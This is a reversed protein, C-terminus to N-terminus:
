IPKRKISNNSVQFQIPQVHASDMFVKFPSANYLESTKLGHKQYYTIGFGAKKVASAILSSSQLLLLENQFDNNPSFM